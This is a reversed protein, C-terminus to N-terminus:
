HADVDHQKSRMTRLLGLGVFGVFLLFFAYFAGAALEAEFSGTEDLATAMGSLVKLFVFFVVVARLRPAEEFTENRLFNAAVNGIAYALVLASYPLTYLSAQRANLGSSAMAVRLLLYGFYTSAFLFYPGLVVPVRRKLLGMFAGFVVGGLVVWSAVVMASWFDAWEPPPPVSLVVVYPLLSFLTTSLLVFLGKGVGWEREDARAQVRRGMGWCWLHSFLANVLLDLYLAVLGVGLMLEVTVLFLPASAALVVLWTKASWRSVRKGGVLTVFVVVGLVHFSLGAVADVAGAVGTAMQLIVLAWAFLGAATAWKTTPDNGIKKLGDVFQM